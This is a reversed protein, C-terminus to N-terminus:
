VQFLGLHGVLSADLGSFTSLPVPFSLSITAITYFGTWFADHIYWNIM